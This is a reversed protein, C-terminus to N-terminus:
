DNKIAKHPWVKQSLNFGFNNSDYKIMSKDVTCILNKEVEYANAHKCLGLYSSLNKENVKTLARKETKKRLVRYYPLVVYGLFDIGQKLKRFIIKNPHLQLKRNELFWASAFKLIKELVLRDHHLFIMDDAYRIYYKLSLDEKAFHDFGDMYVNAFLQSTLNGIPLGKAGGM